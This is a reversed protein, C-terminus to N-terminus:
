QLNPVLTLQGPVQDCIAEEDDVGKSQQSVIPEVLEYDGIEVLDNVSRRTRLTAYIGESDGQLAAPPVKDIARSTTFVMYSNTEFDKLIRSRRRKKVGKIIMLVIVLVLLIGGLTVGIIMNNYSKKCDKDPDATKDMCIQDGKESCYFGDRPKCFVSCSDGFYHSDCEECDLGKRREACVKLGKESCTFTSTETCFVTCDGHPYYDDKCLRQGQQDCSFSSTEECFVTCNGPPYYHDKCIRQGKKNCTFSSNEICIVTCDGEPYFNKRCVKSGEQNCDYNDSKECLKSCDEGYFDEACQMEGDSTCIHKSTQPKCVKTCQRAPYHNELCRIEGEPSCTYRNAEPECFKTCQGAPYYNELCQIEGESTCTYRNTEPECFKICQGAPYYNEACSNCGAGTFGVDCELIKYKLTLSAEGDGDTNTFVTETWDEGAYKEYFAIEMDTMNRVFDNENKHVFGDYDWVSIDVHVDKDTPLDVTIPAKLEPIKTLNLSQVNWFRKSTIEIRRLVNGDDAEIKLPSFFFDSAMNMDQDRDMVKTDTYLVFQIQGQGRCKLQLFLISTLILPTLWSM